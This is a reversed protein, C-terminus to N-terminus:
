PINAGRPHLGTFLEASEEILSKLLLKRRNLFEILRLREASTPRTLENPIRLVASEIVFDPISLIRGCWKDVLNWDTLFERYHNGKHDMDFLAKFDKELAELRPIGAVINRVERHRYFCSNGFDYLSLRGRSDIAVNRREPGFARDNNGVFLDFVIAGHIEDPNTSVYEFLRRSSVHPGAQMSSERDVEHVLVLTETGVVHTLITPVPLGILIGLQTAVVENAVTFPYDENNSKGIFRATFCRKAGSAGGLPDRVAAMVEEIIPGM